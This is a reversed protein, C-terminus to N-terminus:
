TQRCYKCGLDDRRGTGAYRGDVGDHEHCLVGLKVIHDSGNMAGSEIRGYWTCTHGSRVLSWRHVLQRLVIGSNERRLRYNHKWGAPSPPERPKSLLASCCRM